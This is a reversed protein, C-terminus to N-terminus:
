VVALRRGRSRLVPRARRTYCHTAPWRSWPTMCRQGCSWLAHPGVATVQALTPPHDAQLDSCRRTPASPPGGWLLVACRVNHAVVNSPRAPGLGHLFLALRLGWFAVFILCQARKCAIRLHLPPARMASQACPCPTHRVHPDTEGDCTGKPTFPHLPAYGTGDGIGLGTGLAGVPRVASSSVGGGKLGGPPVASSSSGWRGRLGSLWGGEIGRRQGGLVQSSTTPAM